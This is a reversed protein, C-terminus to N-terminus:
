KAYRLALVTTVSGVAVGGVLVLTAKWWSFDEKELSTLVESQLLEISNDKENIISLYMNEQNSLKKDFLDLDFSRLDSLEKLRIECTEECLKIKGYLKLATKNSMCQMDIDFKVPTNAQILKVPEEALALTPFCVLLVTSILKHM